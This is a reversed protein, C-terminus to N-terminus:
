RANTRDFRISLVAPTKVTLAFIRGADNRLFRITRERIRFEDQGQCAANDTHGRCTIVLRKQQSEVRYTAGVESSYYTGRYSQLTRDDCPVSGETILPPPKDYPLAPKNYNFKNKLHADLLSLVIQLATPWRSNAMALVSYQAQPVRLYFIHFGPSIGQHFRIALGRHSAHQWGFAYHTESGDTLRGPTNYIHGLQEHHNGLRNTNLNADWNAMDDVSSWICSAAVASLSASPVPTGDHMTYGQVRHDVIQGSPNGITTRCMNLPSLIYDKCFSDYPMSVVRAVILTLLFYGSSSYRVASGPCFNLYRQNTILRLLESSSVSKNACAIRLLSAYDRIGSSHNLLHQINIADAYDPLEPLYERVPDDLGLLGQEVLLAIAMATFQKSVSSLNFLSQKTILLQLDLQAFGYSRACVVTGSRMVSIIAGPRRGSRSRCLRDLISQTVVPDFQSHSM